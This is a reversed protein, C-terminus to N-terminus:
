ATGVMSRQLSPRSHSVSRSERAPRLNSQTDVHMVFQPPWTLSRDLERRLAISGHGITNASSRACCTTATKANECLRAICKAGSVIHGRQPLHHSLYSADLRPRSRTPADAPGRLRASYVSNGRLSSITNPQPRPRAALMAGAKRRELWAQGVSVVAGSCWWFLHGAGPARGVRSRCGRVHKSV